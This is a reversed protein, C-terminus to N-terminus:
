AVFSLPGKNTSALHVPLPYGSHRLISSLFLGLGDEGTRRIAVTIRDRGVVNTAPRLGCEYGAKLEAGEGLAVSFGGAKVSRLEAAGAAQLPIEM